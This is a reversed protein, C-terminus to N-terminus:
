EDTNLGLGKLIVRLTIEALNLDTLEDPRFWKADLADSGALLNGRRVRCLFDALIYHYQVRGSDDRFIREVLEVLETPEVELGTEELAERIVADRLTEGVDVLGGPISWDGKSPEQGRRVLIVQNHQSIIAGVGVLPCNPYERSIVPVVVWFLSL